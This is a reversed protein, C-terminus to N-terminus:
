RQHVLARLVASAEEPVLGDFWTEVRNRDSASMSGLMLDMRDRVIALNKGAKRGWEQLLEPHLNGFNKLQQETAPRAPTEPSQALALQLTNRADPALEDLVADFGAEFGQRRHDPVGDVIAAVTTEIPAM